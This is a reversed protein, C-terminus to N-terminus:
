DSGGDLLFNIGQSFYSFKRPNGRFKNLRTFALIENLNRHHATCNAIVLVRDASQDSNAMQM